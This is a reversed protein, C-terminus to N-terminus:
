SGLEWIQARVWGKLFKEEQLLKLGANEFALGYNPIDNRRHGTVRRFFQIMFWNLAKQRLNVPQFFDSLFVKGESSLNKKLSFIFNHLEEDQMTDLVFPLCIMDFKRDSNFKGLHFSLGSKGLNNRAQDLMSKSLEWFEGQIKDQIEMYDSGDGGGIILIKKASIDELFITKSQKLQDGFVLRSLASYFPAIRRYADTEEKM